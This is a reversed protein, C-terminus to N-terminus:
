GVKVFKAHESQWNTLIHRGVESDTEDVFEKILKRIWVLNEDTPEELDITAHNILRGIDGHRDSRRFERV